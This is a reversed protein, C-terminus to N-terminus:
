GGQNLQCLHVTNALIDVTEQVLELSMREKSVPFPIMSIFDYWQPVKWAVRGPAVPARLGWAMSLRVIAWVLV